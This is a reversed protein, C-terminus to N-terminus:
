RDTEEDEVDLNSLDFLNGQIAVSGDTDFFPLPNSRPNFLHNLISKGVDSNINYLKIKKLDKQKAWNTAYIFTWKLSSKEPQRVFIYEKGHGTIIEELTYPEWNAKPNSEWRKVYTTAVNMFLDVKRMQPLQFIHKIEEIPFDQKGNPDSYVLGSFQSNYLT